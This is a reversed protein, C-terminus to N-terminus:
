NAGTWEALDSSTVRYIISSREAVFASRDLDIALAQAQMAPILERLRDETSDMELLRQKDRNEIQLLNAIAFSLATASPPFIVQVEHGPQGILGQIIQQFGHEASDILQDYDSDRDFEIEELSEVWGSLYPESYDLKRIRFRRLGHVQIEIQGDPYSYFQTIEVVTGVMYPELNEPLTEPNRLLVIGFIGTLEGCDHVMQRYRDEYIHLQLTAHPFLVAEIPFLPIKVLHLESM